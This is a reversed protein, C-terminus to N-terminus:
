NRHQIARNDVHKITYGNLRNTINEIIVAIIVTHRHQIPPRYVVTQNDMWGDM